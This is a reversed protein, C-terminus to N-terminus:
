GEPAMGGSSTAAIHSIPSPASSLTRLHSDLAHRLAVDDDDFIWVSETKVLPLALNLASSKGVNDKRLYEIRPVYTRLIESTSDTSGDDVVLVRAPPRSQNLLSDLTERIYPARNFTAIV